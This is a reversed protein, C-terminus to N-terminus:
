KKRRGPPPGPPEIIEDFFGESFDEAMDRMKQAIDNFVQDMRNHTGAKYILEQIFSLLIEADVPTLVANLRKDMSNHLTEIVAEIEKSPNM